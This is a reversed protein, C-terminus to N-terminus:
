NTYELLSLSSFRSTPSPEELPMGMADGARRWRGDGDRRGLLFRGKLLHRFVQLVDEMLLPLPEQIPITRWQPQLVLQLPLTWLQADLPTSNPIHTHRLHIVEKIGDDAFQLSSHGGYGIIFFSNLQRQFYQHPRSPSIHCFSHTHSFTVEVHSLPLSSPSFLRIRVCALCSLLSCLVNYLNRSRLLVVFVLDIVLGIRHDWAGLRFLRYQPPIGCTGQDGRVVEELRTKM